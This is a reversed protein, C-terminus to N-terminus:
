KRNDKKSTMSCIQLEEAGEESTFILFCVGDKADITIPAKIKGIFYTKGYEDIRKELDLSLRDSM